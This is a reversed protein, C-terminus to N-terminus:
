YLFLKYLKLFVIHKLTLTYSNLSFEVLGKSKSHFAPLFRGLSTTRIQTECLRMPVLPRLSSEIDSLLFSILLLLCKPIAGQTSVACQCGSALTSSFHSFLELMVRGIKIRRGQFRAAVGGLVYLHKLCPGYLKITPSFKRLTRGM